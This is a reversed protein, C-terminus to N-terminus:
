RFLDENAPRVLAAAPAAPLSWTLGRVLVVPRGEDAQGMVLSAAAAVEDAFGIETARLTRGFMDPRGRLDMLAPLDLETSRALSLCCSAGAVLARREDAALPGDLVTVDQRDTALKLEELAPVDQAGNTTRVLLTAGDDPGFAREYARLAGIPNAREAAGYAFPGGLAAVTPRLVTELIVTRAFRAPFRRAWDSDYDAGLTRSPAPPAARSASCCRKM